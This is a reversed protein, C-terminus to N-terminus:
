AVHELHRARELDRQVRLDEGLGPAVGRDDRRAKDDVATNIAVLEDGVGHDLRLHVHLEAGFHRHEGGHQRRLLEVLGFHVVIEETPMKRDLADLDRCGTRLRQVAEFAQAALDRRPNNSPVVLSESRMRLLAGKARTEFSSPRYLAAPGEHNSVASARRRVMLTQYRLPPM